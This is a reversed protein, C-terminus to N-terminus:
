RWGRQLHFSRLARKLAAADAYRLAEPKELILAAASQVDLPRSEVRCPRVAEVIADKPIMAIFFGGGGSKSSLRFHGERPEVYNADNYTVSIGTSFRVTMM